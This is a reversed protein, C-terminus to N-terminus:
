HRYGAPDHEDDARQDESQSDAQGEQGEQGHEDDAM